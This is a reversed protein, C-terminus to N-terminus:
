GSIVYGFWEQLAASSEDDGPWLDRMFTMWRQPACADGDYDFPVSTANFFFPSHELLTRTPVDLLGNATSVPLGDDPAGNLSASKALWAPMAIELPLYVIAALADLLNAIKYRNPAWPKLGGESDVYSAHETYAYAASAIARQELEAWRTTQWAWWGGR